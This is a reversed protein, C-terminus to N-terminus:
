EHRHGQLYNRAIKREEKRYFKSVIFKETLRGNTATKLAHFDTKM